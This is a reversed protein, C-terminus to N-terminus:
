WYHLTTGSISWVAIKGGNKAVINVPPQASSLVIEAKVIDPYKIWWSLAFVLCIAGAIVSIGYRAIWAPPTGLLDTIEETNKNPM